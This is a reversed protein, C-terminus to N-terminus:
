RMRLRLRRCMKCEATDNGNRKTNNGISMSGSGRKPTAISLSGRRTQDKTARWTSSLIALCTSHFM